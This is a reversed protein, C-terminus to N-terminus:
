SLSRYASFHGTEILNNFIMTFKRMLFNQRMVRLQRPQFIARFILVVTELYIRAGSSAKAQIGQQKDSRIPRRGLSRGLLASIGNSPSCPHDTKAEPKSGVFFAFGPVGVQRASTM